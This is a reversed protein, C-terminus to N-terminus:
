LLGVAAVWLLVQIAISSGWLLYATSRESREGPIVVPAPPDDPPSLGEVQEDALKTPEVVQPKRAAYLAVGIIGNVLWAIAGIAPLILLGSPPGTRDVAGAGDFHLPVSDPLSPFRTAVAVLLVFPLALGIALIVLAWRDQWLTWDYFQPRNEAYPVEETIGKRGEDEFLKIFEEINEPSIVYGGQGTAVILQGSQPTTAFYTLDGVAKTHGTGVLCGPWWLGRPALDAPLDSGMILGSIDAMPIIQKVPGWVIVLANQTFRYYANLLALSRYGVFAILPLSVLILLVWLPTIFNVPTQILITAFLGDAAALLIIVAFGIALGLTRPPQSM